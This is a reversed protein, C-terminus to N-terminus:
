PIYKNLLQRLEKKSSIELKSYINKSHSKVTNVSIHLTDSIEVNSYNKLLLFAVEKERPTLNEFIDINDGKTNELVNEEAIEINNSLTEPIKSLIAVAVFLPIFTVLNYFPLQTIFTNQNLLYNIIGGCATGLVFCAIGYVHLEPRNENIAIDAAIIWISADLFAWGPQLTSQVLFYSVIGTKFTNFTFSLGVFSIGIYILYKRGIKDAIIGSFIVSIIFPLVNYYRELYHYKELNPYVNTYTTGATIFIIIVLLFFTWPLKTKENEYTDSIPTNPKEYTHYLAISIFLFIAPVIPAIAKPVSPIIANSIYLLGYCIFLTVAIIQGRENKPVTVLFIRSWFIVMRGITFGFIILLLWKLFMPLIYFISTLTAVLIVLIQLNNKKLEFRTTNEPQLLLGLVLFLLSCSSMILVTNGTVTRKLVPGFVPFILEAAYFFGLILILKINKRVVELYNRLFM